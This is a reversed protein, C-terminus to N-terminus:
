LKTSVCVCSLILGYDGLMRPMAAFIVFHVRFRDHIISVSTMATIVSTATDAGTIPCFVSSMILKDNVRIVPPNM